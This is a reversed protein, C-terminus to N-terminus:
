QVAVKRQELLDGLTVLLADRCTARFGITDARMVRELRAVKDEELLVGGLGEWRFERRLKETRVTNDGLVLIVDRARMDVKPVGLDEM